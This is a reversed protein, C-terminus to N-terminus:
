PVTRVSLGWSSAWRSWLAVSIIVGRAGATPRPSDCGIRDRWPPQGAAVSLTNTSTLPTHRHPRRESGAPATSDTDVAVPRSVQPNRAAECRIRYDRTPHSPQPPQNRHTAIVSPPPHQSGPAPRHPAAAAGPAAPTRPSAPPSACGSAPGCGPPRRRDRPRSCCTRANASCGVRERPLPRRRQSILPERIQARDPVARPRRHAAILDRDAPEAPVQGVRGIAPDALALRPEAGVRHLHDGLHVGGGM